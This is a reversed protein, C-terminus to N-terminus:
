RKSERKKSRDEFRNKQKEIEKVKIESAKSIFPELKEIFDAILDLTPEYAGFIKYTAGNGFLEDIMLALKETYEYIKKYTTENDEIDNTPFERGFNIFEIFRKIFKNDDLNLTICDGEDNVQINLINTKVRLNLQEAM